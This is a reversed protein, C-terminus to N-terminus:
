LMNLHSADEDGGTGAGADLAAIVDASATVASAGTVAGVHLMHMKEQLQVLVQGSVQVQMWPPMRVWVQTLRCVLVQVIEPGACVRMPASAEPCAFVATHAGSCERAFVSSVQM